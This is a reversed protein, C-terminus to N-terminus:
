YQLTQIIERIERRRPNYIRDIENAISLKTRDNFLDRRIHVSTDKKEVDLFGKEDAYDGFNDLYFFDNRRAMRIIEDNLLRNYLLRDESSGLPSFICNETTPVLGSIWIHVSPVLKLNELILKEYDSVLRKIEAYVGIEKFKHLHSRSDIEGFNIIVISDPRVKFREFDVFKRGYRTAGFLTKAHISHNHYIVRSPVKKFISYPWDSHSDGFSYVHVDEPVWTFLGFAFGSLVVFGSIVSTSSFTMILFFINIVQCPNFNRINHSANFCVDVTNYQM